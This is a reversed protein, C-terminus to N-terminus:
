VKLTLKHRSGAWTGKSRKFGSEFDASCPSFTNDRRNLMYKNNTYSEDEQTSNGEKNKSLVADSCISKGDNKVGRKSHITSLSTKLKFNLKNDVYEHNYKLIRLKNIRQKM